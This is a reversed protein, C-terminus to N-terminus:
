RCFAVGTENFFWGTLFHYVMRDIYSNPPPPTQVCALIETEVLVILCDDFLKSQNLFSKKDCFLICNSIRSFHLSIAHAYFYILSLFIINPHLPLHSFM